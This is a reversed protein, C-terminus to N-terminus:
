ILYGHRLLCAGGASYRAGHADKPINKDVEAKCIAWAQELTYKKGKASAGAPHAIVFIAVLALPALANSRSKLV